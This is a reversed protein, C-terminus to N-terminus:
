NVLIHRTQTLHRSVNACFPALLSGPHPSPAAAQVLMTEMVEQDPTWLSPITHSDPPLPLHLCGHESNFL